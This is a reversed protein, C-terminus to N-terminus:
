SRKLPKRDPTYEVTELSSPMPYPEFRDVDVGDIYVVLCTNWIRFVPRTQSFDRIFEYVGPTKAAYDHWVITGGPKLMELAKRTDNEAGKYSHDADVFIFDMQKAYPSPDFARSDAFIQVIRDRYPSEQILKGIYPAYRPDQEPPLNLTTVRVDEGIAALGCTTQGRYTGFEFINTAKTAAAIACVYLMDVQNAQHSEEHIVGIPIKIDNINPFLEALYLERIRSQSRIKDLKLQFGWQQLNRYLSSNLEGEILLEELINYFEEPQNSIWNSLQTFLTWNSNAKWVRFIKHLYNTRDPSEEIRALLMRTLEKADQRDLLRATLRATESDDSLRFMLNQLEKNKILALWYDYNKSFNETVRSLQRDEYLKKILLFLNPIKKYNM